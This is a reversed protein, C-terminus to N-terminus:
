RTSVYKDCVVRMAICVVFTKMNRRTFSFYHALTKYGNTVIHPKAIIYTYQRIDGNPIPNHNACITNYGM